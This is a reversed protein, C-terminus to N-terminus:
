RRIRIVARSTVLASGALLVLAAAMAEYAYINASAIKTILLDLFVLFSCLTLIGAVVLSAWALERM